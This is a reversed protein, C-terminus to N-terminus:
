NSLGASSSEYGAVELAVERPNLTAILTVGQAHLYTYTHALM